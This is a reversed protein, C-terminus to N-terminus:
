RRKEKRKRKKERLVLWYFVFGVLCLYITHVFPPLISNSTIICYIYISLNHYYICCYCFSHLLYLLCFVDCQWLWIKLFLIGYSTFTVISTCLCWNHTQSFPCPSVSSDKSAHFRLLCNYDLCGTSHYRHRITAVLSSHNRVWDDCCYLHTGVLSHKFRCCWSCFYDVSWMPVVWVSHPDSQWHFYLLCL